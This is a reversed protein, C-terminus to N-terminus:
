GAVWPQEGPAKVFATALFQGGQGDDIIEMLNGGASPVARAVSVGGSALTNIWDVEGRILNESKRLSHGIRLIFGKGGREFEYIFSEFADLPQIEHKAIGYRQMAEQLVSDNYRALIKQDM